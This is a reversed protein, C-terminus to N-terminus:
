IGQKKTLEIERIEICNEKLEGCFAIKDNKNYRSFIFDANDDYAKAFVYDRRKNIYDCVEIVLKVISVHKKSNYFFKFEIQNIIKGSLLVSILIYFEM